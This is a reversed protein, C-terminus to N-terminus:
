LGKNRAPILFDSIIGIFADEDITTGQKLHRFLANTLGGAYFAATTEVQVKSMSDQKAHRIVQTMDLSMQDLLISLLVPFM